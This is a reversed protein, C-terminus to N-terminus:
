KLRVWKVADALVYRSENKDSMEVTNKGATLRFKGILTWGPRADKLDIVVEEVGDAHHILFHRTGPQFMAAMARAPAEGTTGARQGGRQGGAAGQGGPGAQGGGQMGRMGMGGRAMVGGIGEFYFYIDYDGSESLDLTWSVKNTGSGSKKVYASRVFGGYFNQLIVTQWSDPPNALGLISVADGGDGESAFIRRVSSRLWNERGKEPLLFTPDENDVIYEGYAGPTPAVYPGASEGDFPKAGPAAPRNAFPLNFVPPLNRSMTTDVTTMAAAQDLVIGVDKVTRPPLIVVRSDTAAAVGGAMMGRGGGGGGPGGGGRGVMNIKVVGERDTPNSVRFKIQFKTKEGDVVRYSQIDDFLFGALGKDQYWAYITQDLNLTGMGAVFDEFAKQTIPQFRRDKLFGILRSDFDDKGLKARILTLLYKGKEELIASKPVDPGSLKLIEALSHDMLFQNVSEQTVGSGLLGQALRLAPGMQGQSRAQLYVELAYDLLPWAPIGSRSVYTLFNPFLNFRAESNAQIRIGLPGTLRGSQFAPQGGPQMGTLNSQVFRNFLQRQIEKPSMQTGGRMAAPQAAVAGVQQGVRGAMARPGGLQFDSGVTFVGMEPLFVIQPQVQEQAISWPRNHSTVQVPVEVLALQEFPYNLGLLVEYNDKIQKIIQPLDAKIESLKATFRDHGQLINLAFRVGDVEISKQEYRGLTVSLQPLPTKPRFVTTKNQGSGAIEPNGQSVATLGAPAEVSLTFRTYDQRASEPFLLSDPLGPRPYWGSEPTLHVFAPSVVAFRKPISVPGIKLPTEVKDDDLDLYCYGEDIPGAYSVSLRITGGPPLPAPLEVDLLHRKRIFKLAGTDGKVERVELGPNLNLVVTKLPAETRNVLELDASAVISSGDPKLRIDCAQLSPSPKGVGERSEARIAARVDRDAAKGHLYTYGLGCAASAGLVAIIGLAGNWRSTQKLRRMLLAAFFVFSLGLLAYVARLPLIDSLNGLGIFDSHFVPTHFGFIDFLFSFKPGIIALSFVVISLGLLYVIAQSRILSGLLMTLGITFLLAPLNLLLLYALYASASFMTQSFFVQIVVAVLLVAADLLAFVALVGLFKGLIYSANSFSQSYVVETTDLKRDRNLFESAIFVAMLGQFVTLLKVIILPFAGSLVRSFYLGSIRSLTLSVMVFVLLAFGLGAFIRFGWARSLLRMEFRAVTLISKSANM